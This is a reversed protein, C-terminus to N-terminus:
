ANKLEDRKKNFEELWKINEKTQFMLRQAVDEIRGFRRYRYPLQEFKVNVIAGNPATFTKTEGEKVNLFLDAPMYHPAFAYNEDILGLVHKQRDNYGHDTCNDEKEEPCHVWTQYLVENDKCEIGLWELREKTSRKIHALCLDHRTGSNPVIFVSLNITNNNM